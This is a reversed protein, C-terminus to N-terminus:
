AAAEAELADLRATLAEIAGLGAVLADRERPELSAIAAALLAHRKRRVADAAAQAPRPLSLRAVRGDRPDRTRELDGRAVLSGVLTSVTNPALGLRAAADGVAIGPHRGVLRLLEAHAETLGRGSVTRGALRRIRRRVGGLASLMRPVLGPDISPDISAGPATALPPATPPDLLPDLPPDPRPSM